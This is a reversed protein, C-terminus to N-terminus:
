ASARSFFNQVSANDLLNLDSRSPTLFDHKHQKALATINKGLMGNAGTLLIKM